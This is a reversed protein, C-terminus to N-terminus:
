HDCEGNMFGNLKSTTINTYGLERLKERVESESFEM